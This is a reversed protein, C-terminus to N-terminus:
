TTKFLRNLQELMQTDLKGAAAYLQLIALLQNYQASTLDRVSQTRLQQANLVDLTTRLGVEQGRKSSKLVTESSALSQELAKIQMKISNVANWAQHIEKTINQRTSSLDSLAKEYLSATERTRSALGGGSYLPYNLRVGISNSHQKYHSTLANGGQANNLAIQSSLDITTGEQAQNKSYELRAIESNKQALQVLPHETQGANLWRDLSNFLLPPLPANPQLENLVPIPHGTLNQVAVKKNEVDLQAATLQAMVQDFRAQAEHTDVITANGIQFNKKALKLQEEISSKHSQLAIVTNEAIRQEFYAQAVRLILEQQALIYQLEGQEASKNGQEAQYQNSPRYLPYSINISANVQRYNQSADNETPNYTTQHVFNQDIGTSLTISPKLLAQGQARKEAIAQQTARAGALSPDHKEAARFVSLLDTAGAHHLCLMLLTATLFRCRQM